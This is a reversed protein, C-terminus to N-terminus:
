EAPHYFIFPGNQKTFFMAREFAHQEAINKCKSVFTSLGAPKQWTAGTAIFFDVYSNFEALNNLMRTDPQMNAQIQDAAQLVHAENQVREM